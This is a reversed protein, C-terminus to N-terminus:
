VDDDPSTEEEEIQGGDETLPDADQAAAFSPWGLCLCVLLSQLLRVGCLNASSRENTASERIERDITGARM